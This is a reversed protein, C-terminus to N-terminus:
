VPGLFFFTNASTGSIELVEFMEPDLKCVIFASVHKKDYIM